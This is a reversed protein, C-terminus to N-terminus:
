IHVLYPPSKEIEKRQMMKLEKMLVFETRYCCCLHCSTTILGTPICRVYEVVEGWIRQGRNGQVCGYMRFVARTTKSCFYQNKHLRSTIRFLGVHPWLFTKSSVNSKLLSLWSEITTLRYSPIVM